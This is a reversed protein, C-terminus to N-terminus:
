NSNIVTINKIINPSFLKNKNPLRNELALNKPIIPTINDLNNRLSLPGFSYEKMYNPNSRIKPGLVEYIFLNISSTM